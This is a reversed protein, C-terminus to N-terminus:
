KIIIILNEVTEVVEYGAREYLRKAPNKSHTSIYAVRAGVRYGWALNDDLLARGIGSGRSEPSVVLGRNRLQLEGAVNEVLASRSYGLVREGETALTYCSAKADAMSAALEEKYDDLSVGHGAEGEYGIEVSAMRDLYAPIEADGLRLIACSRLPEMTPPADLLRRMLYGGPYGEDPKFGRAKFFAAYGPCFPVIECELRWKERKRLRLVSEDLLRAGLGKGRSAPSVWLRLWARGMEPSLAVLAAAVIRGRESASLAFGKRSFPDDLYKRSFQALGMRTEWPREAAVERWLGYLGAPGGMYECVETGTVYATLRDPM